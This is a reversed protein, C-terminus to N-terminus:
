SHSDDDHSLDELAFRARRAHAGETGHSGYDRSLVGWLSHLTAEYDPGAVEGAEPKFKLYDIEM